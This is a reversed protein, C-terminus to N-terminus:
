DNNGLDMGQGVYARSVEATLNDRFRVASGGFLRFGYQVQQVRNGAILNANGRAVGIGISREGTVYMVDNDVIANGSGQVHIGTAFEVGRALGTRFVHNGRVTANWADLFIGYEGSSHVNMDEVTHGVSCNECHYVAEIGRGFCAVTGNRITVNNVNGTIRIGVTPAGPLENPCAGTHDAANSLSHGKLDFTVNGANIFVAEGSSIGTTVPADLCYHGPEDIEAPFHSLPKCDALATSAMSLLVATSLLKNMM